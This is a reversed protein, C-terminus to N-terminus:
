SVALRGRDWQGLPVQQGMIQGDARHHVVVVESRPCARRRRASCCVVGHGQTGRRRAPPRPRRVHGRELLYGEPNPAMAVPWLGTGGCGGRRLFM